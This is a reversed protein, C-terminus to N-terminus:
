LELEPGRRQQQAEEIAAIRQQERLQDNWDKAEPRQREAGPALAEIQQALRDGAADADTAVVVAMGREEQAKRLAKSVLAWAEPSPQGGISLYAAERDGTAQAHSLADIASEVVVVRPAHGLNASHWVRKEGGASFGTFGENKLEYGSLGRGDYHPFVANGRQDIRVMSAFRPDELTEPALGRALLYPHGGAPQPQMQMWVALVRQRDATSPKPKTIQQRESIPMSSLGLWPRLEKRVQGLNLGKRRQVFDIISGNDLDDRVSFYIGHGDQDTAVILKDGNAHRMVASSRSSERRDLQYGQDAMYEALNIETKFRELEDTRHQRMHQIGREIGRDGASAARQAAASARELSAGAAVLERDAEAAAEAAARAADIAERFREILATRIRDYVGGAWATLRDWAASLAGAGTAHQVDGVRREDRPVPERRRGQGDAVRSAAGPVPALGLDRSVSVPLRDPRDGVAFGDDVFEVTEGSSHSVAGAGREPTRDAAGTAELNRDIIADRARYREQNYCARSEIIRELEGRAAEARREDPKRDGAERASNAIEVAREVTWHQEYIAGKLRIAKKDRSPKVSIYDKGQRNISLGADELASVIGARDQILGSNIRQELYQGILKKPDAAAQLGSRLASAEILMQHDDRKAVQARAPDDPDAWGQAFNWANRFADHAAQHGPPCPNYAKGTPLHLRPIVFHLEVNGCHEHRVWLVNYEDPELGAFALKEFDAMVSRQEAETPADEAAFAIVGSTYKWTNQSSDIIARTLEPDGGMVVPPPDRDVMQGPIPKGGPDTAQVADATVYNVPGRGGGRGRKFVKILM